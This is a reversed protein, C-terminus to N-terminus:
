QQVSLATHRAPGCDEKGSLVHTRKAGKARILNKLAPGDIRDGELFDIARRANGDLGAILQDITESPTM